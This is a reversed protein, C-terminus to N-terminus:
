RTKIGATKSTNHKTNKPKKITNIIFQKRASRYGKRLSQRKYVIENTQHEVM